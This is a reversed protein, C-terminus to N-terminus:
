GGAPETARGRGGTSGQAVERVSSGDARRGRQRLLHHDQRYLLRRLSRRRLLTHDPLPPPISPRPRLHRPPSRRVHPRRRLLRDQDERRGLHPLPNRHQRRLLLPRQRHRPQPPLAPARPSHHPQFQDAPLPICETCCSEECSPCDEICSQCVSEDCRRCFSMCEDCFDRECASCCHVADESMSYGCDSCIIGEWDALPVFPSDPNYNELVGRALMFFDCLRGGALAAQMATRGDGTCLQEDSVHPHTVHRNSAAPHPDLALVALATNLKGQGINEINLRLEFEGLYIGELEIADTTVALVGGESNLKLNGFEEDVQRLEACLDGVLPRETVMSELSWKAENVTAPLHTIIRLTQEQVAKAAAHWGRQSCIALRRKISHLEDLSVLVRSIEEAIRGYRRTKLMALQTCISGAIRVLERDSLEM